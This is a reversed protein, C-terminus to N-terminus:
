NYFGLTVPFTFRWGKRSGEEEPRFTVSLPLRYVQLTRGSIAYIGSGLQTAFAYNFTTKESASLPEAAGSAERTGLLFLVGLVPLVFQRMRAQLVQTFM